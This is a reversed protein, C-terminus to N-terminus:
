APAGRIASRLRASAQGVEAEVAQWQAADAAEMEAMKDEVVQQRQRLELIQLELDVRSEASRHASIRELRAITQRARDVDKQAQEVITSQARTIPAHVFAPQAALSLRDTDPLVLRSGHVQLQAAPVAVLRRSAGLPNGTVVILFTVHKDTGVILDLAKGLTDGSANYVPRGLISQKASWGAIVQETEATTSGLRRTGAVQAGATSALALAMGLVAINGARKM